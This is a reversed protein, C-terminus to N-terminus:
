ATDPPLLAADATWSQLKLEMRFSGRNASGRLGVISGDGKWSTMLTPVEAVRGDAEWITWRGERKGDVYSGELGGGDAKRITVAGDRKGDVYVNKGVDGDANITTWRGERKGDVYSGEAVRGDAKRTIWRGERKGAVFPGASFEGDPWRIVWDGHAKSNTCEGEGEMRETMTTAVWKSDARAFLWCDPMNGVRFWCAPGDARGKCVPGPAEDAPSVGPLALLAVAFISGLHRKM